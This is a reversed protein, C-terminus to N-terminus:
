NLTSFITCVEVNRDIHYRQNQEVQEKFAKVFQDSLSQHIVINRANRIPNQIKERLESYDLSNLRIMFPKVASNISVVQINVFQVATNTEISIEHNEAKLISLHVDPKHAVHINYATCKIIWSDTIYVSTGGIHSSFKDFRRFEVNIRSAVERWPNGYCSLTKVM